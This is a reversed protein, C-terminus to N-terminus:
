SPLNGPGGGLPPESEARGRPHGTPVSWNPLVTLYEPSPFPGVQGLQSPPVLSLSLWDQKWGLEVRLPELSDLFGYERPTPALRSGQCSDRSPREGALGDTLKRLFLFTSSRM